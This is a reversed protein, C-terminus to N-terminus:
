WVARSVTKSSPVAALSSRARSDCSDCRLGSRMSPVQCPELVAGAAGEGKAAAALALPLGCPAAASLTAAAAPEGGTPSPSSSPEPALLAADMLM